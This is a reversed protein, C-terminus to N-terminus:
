ESGIKGKDDPLMSLWEALQMYQERLPTAIIRPIMNLGDVRQCEGTQACFVWRNQKAALGEGGGPSPKGKPRSDFV